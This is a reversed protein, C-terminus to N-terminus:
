LKGNRGTREHETSFYQHFAGALTMGVEGRSVRGFIEVEEELIQLDQDEARSQFNEDKLSNEVVRPTRKM